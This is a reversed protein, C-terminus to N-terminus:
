IKIFEVRRNSAKGESTNNDAVPASEGKGDTEMRSIDLGYETVLINKVAAARRKSLDLNAAEEGDSDTHGIIKVKVTPNEKLIDAISKITGASESKIKDSNVDFLIGRTVFKGETLLKSRMDPAGVAVRINSILLEEEQQIEGETDFRLISLKADPVFARPLDFIKRENLYVRFRQNQRWLSLRQPVGENNLFLRDDVNSNINGYRNNQWNHIRHHYSGLDLIIGQEGPQGSMLNEKESGFIEIVVGGPNMVKNHQMIIDMEITFNDPLSRIGDPLFHGGPKMRFWKGPATTTTVVEGSVDTDWRAPFDGVADTAFDEYFVTNEGPVFDFKSYSKYTPKSAGPTAAEARASQEATNGSADATPQSDAPKKNGKIENEADDMTKSTAEGAKNVVKNEATQVVRNKIKKLIQADANASLALGFVSLCVIQQMTKM